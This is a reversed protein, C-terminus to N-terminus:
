GIPQSLLPSGVSRRTCFWKPTRQSGDTAYSASKSGGASGDSFSGTEIERGFKTWSQRRRVSVSSRAKSTRQRLSPKDTSQDIVEVVIPSRACRIECRENM